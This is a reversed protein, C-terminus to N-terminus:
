KAKVSDDGDVSCISCSVCLFGGKKKDLTKENSM